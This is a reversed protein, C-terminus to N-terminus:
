KSYNIDYNIQTFQNRSRQNQDIYKQKMKYIKHFQQM